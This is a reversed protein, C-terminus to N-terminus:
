ETTVLANGLLSLPLTCRQLPTRVWQLQNQAVESCARQLHQISHIRGVNSSHVHIRLSKRSSSMAERLLLASLTNWCKICTHGLVNRQLKATKNKKTTNSNTPNKSPKNANKENAKASFTGSESSLQSNMPGWFFQVAMGRPVAAKPKRPCGLSFVIENIGCLLLQKQKLSIAEGAHCRIWTAM